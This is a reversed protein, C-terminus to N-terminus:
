SDAVQAATAEQLIKTKEGELQKKDNIKVLKTGLLHLKALLGNQMLALYFKSLRYTYINYAM